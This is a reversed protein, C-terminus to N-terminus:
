AAIPEPKWGADTERLRIETRDVADLACLREVMKRVHTDGGTYETYLVRLFRDATSPMPKKKHKEWLRLTQEKTGLISALNKQSLDMEIRLFRLEAGLIPAPTEVISLGIAKHLGELNEITIGEGHKTPVIEFGNLLFVNDLGCATYHYSM